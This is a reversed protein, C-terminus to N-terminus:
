PAMENHCLREAVLHIFKDYCQCYEVYQNYLYSLAVTCKCLMTKIAPSTGISLNWWGRIM